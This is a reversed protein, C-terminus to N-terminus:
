PAVIHDEHVAPKKGLYRRNEWKADPIGWNYMPIACIDLKIASASKILARVGPYNNNVQTIITYNGCQMNVNMLQVINPSRPNRELCATRRQASNLTSM